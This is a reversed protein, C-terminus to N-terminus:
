AHQLGVERVPRRATSPEPVDSKVSFATFDESNYQPGNDSTITIPVGNRSFWSKLVTFVRTSTTSIMDRVEFYGSYYDVAVLLFKRELVFFDVGVM